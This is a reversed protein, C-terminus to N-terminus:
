HRVEGIPKLLRASVMPSLTLAVFASCIV